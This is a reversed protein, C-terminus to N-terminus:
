GGVVWNTGWQREAYPTTACLATSNGNVSTYGSVVQPSQGTQVKYVVSNQAAFVAYGTDATACYVVNQYVPSFSFKVQMTSAQAASTPYVGNDVNYLEFKKAANVLDSTMQAARARQQIGNYAVISIAALIAIVVIVILLEVITFGTQRKAMLM